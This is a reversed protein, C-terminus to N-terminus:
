KCYTRCLIVTFTNLADNYLCKEAEKRGYVSMQLRQLGSMITKIVNVFSNKNKIQKNTKGEQCIIYICYLKFSSSM